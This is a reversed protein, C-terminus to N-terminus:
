EFEDDDDFWAPDVCMVDSCEDGRLTNHESDTESTSPETRVPRSHDDSLLSNQGSSTQTAAPSRSKNVSDVSSMFDSEDCDSFWEPQIEGGMEFYTLAELLDQDNNEFHDDFNDSAGGCDPDRVYFVDEEM